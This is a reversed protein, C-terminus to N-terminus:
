GVPAPDNGRGIKHALKIVEGSVQFGVSLAVMDFDESLFEGEETVYNVKVDGGPVPDLSHVRCRIFRVGIEKARNYYLEFDKGYTRMDMYFITTELPEKSHEMAIVAEKIAYMCCVSSCYSNYKVDRSGVCQLWAMKKPEKHDAPRVLHGEYPGSASLIRELELSTVVNPIRGYGWVDAISPDFTKAGASMIVAGVNIDLSQPKQSHDVAKPQCNIACQMCESCVGCNVCRAAEAQAQEPTFGFAIENFGKTWDAVPLHPM